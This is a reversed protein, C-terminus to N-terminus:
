QKTEEYYLAIAFVVKQTEDRAMQFQAGQTKVKNEALFKNYDEEVVQPMIDFFIKVKSAGKATHDVYGKFDKADQYAKEVEADSATALKSNFQTTNLSFSENGHDDKDANNKAPETDGLVNMKQWSQTPQGQEREPCDHPRRTTPDLPIKRGNKGIHEADFVVEAHCKFCYLVL